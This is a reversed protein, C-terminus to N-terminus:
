NDQCHSNSEYLSDNRPALILRSVIFSSNVVNHPFASNQYVVYLAPMFMIAIICCGDSTIVDVFIFVGFNIWYSHVLIFM